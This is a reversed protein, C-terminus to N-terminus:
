PEGAEIVAAIAVRSTAGLKRLIAAVQNAVTRVSTRRARAIEQNTKGRAVLEAVRRESRTLTALRESPPKWEVVLYTAGDLKVERTRVSMAQV